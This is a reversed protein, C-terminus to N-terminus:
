AGRKRKPGTGRKLARKRLENIAGIANAKDAGLLCLFRQMLQVFPGGPQLIRDGTTREYKRAAITPEYGARLFAMQLHMIFDREAERKPSRLEIEIGQQRYHHAMQKAQLRDLRRKPVHLIPVWRGRDDRRGGHSCLQRLTQCAAHQRGHDLFASPKPIALAVRAARKNLFARAQKSMGRVLEAAKAYQHRFAAWYLAAIERGIEDDSPTNVARIYIRGAARASVAILPLANAQLPLGVKQALDRVAKDSFVQPIDARAPICRDKRM